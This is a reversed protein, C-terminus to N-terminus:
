SHARDKQRGEGLRDAKLLSAFTISANRQIAVAPHTKLGGKATAVTMGETAIAEAAELALSLATAAHYL